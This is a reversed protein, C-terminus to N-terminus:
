PAEWKIRFSPLSRAETRPWSSPLWGAPAGAADENEEIYTIRDGAIQLVQNAQGTNDLDYTYLRTGSPTLFRPSWADMGPLGGHVLDESLTWANTSGPLDKIFSLSNNFVLDGTPIEYGITTIETGGSGRPLDPIETPIQPVTLRQRGVFYEFGTSPDTAGHINAHTFESQSLKLDERDWAYGVSFTSDLSYALVPKRCAISTWDVNAGSTFSEPNEYRSELSVTFQTRQAIAGTETEKGRKKKPQWTGTFAFNVVQTNGAGSPALMAGTTDSPTGATSPATTRVPLKHRLFENENELLAQRAKKVDPDRRLDAGTKGTQAAKAEAAKLDQELYHRQRELYAQRMQEPGNPPWDPQPSGELKGKETQMKAERENIKQERQAPEQPLDNGYSDKGQQKYRELDALRHGSETPTPVRPEGVLHQYPSMPPSPVLLLGRSFRVLRASNRNFPLSHEPLQAAPLVGQSFGISAALFNKKCEDLLVAIPGFHGNLARLQSELIEAQQLSTPDGKARLQRIQEPLAYQAKRANYAGEAIKRAEPSVFDKNQQASKLKNKVNDLETEKQKFEDRTLRKGTKADKFERLEKELTEKQHEYDAIDKGLKNMQEVVEPPLPENGMSPLGWLVTISLATAVAMICRLPHAYAHNM